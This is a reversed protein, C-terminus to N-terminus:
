FTDLSGSNNLSAWLTANDDAIVEDPALKFFSEQNRLLEEHINCFLSCGGCLLAWCAGALWILVSLYQSLCQLTSWIPGLPPSWYFKLFNDTLQGLFFFTLCRGENYWRVGQHLCGHLDFNYAALLYIFYFLIYVHCWTGELLEFLFFTDRAGTGCRRGTNEQAQLFLIIFYYVLHPVTVLAAKVGTSKWISYTMKLVNTRFDLLTLPRNLTQKGHKLNIFM